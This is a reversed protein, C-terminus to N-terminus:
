HQQCLEDADPALWAFQKLCKLWITSMFSMFFLKTSGLKKMRMTIKFLSGALYLVMHGTISTCVLSLRVCHTLEMVTLCVQIRAMANVQNAVVLIIEKDENSNHQAQTANVRHSEGGSSGEDGWNHASTVGTAPSTATTAPAPTPSM